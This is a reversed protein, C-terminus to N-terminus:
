RNGDRGVAVAKESLAAFAHASSPLQMAASLSAEGPSSEKSILLAWRIFCCRRM